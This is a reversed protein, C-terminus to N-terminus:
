KVAFGDDTALIDDAAVIDDGAAAAVSWSDEADPPGPLFAIDVNCRCKDVYDKEKTEETRHRNNHFVQFSGCLFIQQVHGQVQGEVSVQGSSTFLEFFM